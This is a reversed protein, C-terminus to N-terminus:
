AGSGGFRQWLAGTWLGGALLLSLLVAASGLDKARASLEHREPGIRDIASEVATNLLEVVLVLIVSGALLGIEVWGRGLWFAAPLLVVALATEQRFASESRLASALGALSYGFAHLIRSLGTRRQFPSTM